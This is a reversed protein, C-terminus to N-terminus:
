TICECSHNGYNVSKELGNTYNREENKKIEHIFKLQPMFAKNNLIKKAMGIWFFFFNQFCQLLDVGPSKNRTMLFQLFEIRTTKFQLFELDWECM